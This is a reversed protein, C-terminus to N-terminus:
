KTFRRGFFISDPISCANLFFSRARVICFVAFRVTSPAFFFVISFRGFEVVLLHICCTQTGIRRSPSPGRSYSTVFDIKLSTFTSPFFPFRLRVSLSFYVRNRLIACYSSFRVFVCCYSNNRSSSSLKSM